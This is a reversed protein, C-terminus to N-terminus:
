VVQYLKHVPAILDINKTPIVSIYRIVRVSWALNSPDSSLTELLSARTDATLTKSDSEVADTTCNARCVVFVEGAFGLEELQDKYAVPCYAVGYVLPGLVPGRGAEDVGLIYPGETTPTRSHYTYSETLPESPGPASPVTSSM